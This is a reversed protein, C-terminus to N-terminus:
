FSKTNFIQSVAIKKPLVLGGGLLFLQFNLSIQNSRVEAAAFVM